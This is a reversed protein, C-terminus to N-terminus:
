VMGQARFWEIEEQLSARIPGPRYGLERKAKDISVYHPYKGMRVSALCALPEKNTLRGTIEGMVGGILTLAYPVQITPSPVGSLEGLVGLFNKLSINEGGLIYRNGITGREAALCHGEAADRVDVVNLGSDTYVPFKGKLFQIITHGIPSPKADGPGIPAALNIIIVPLGDACAEMAVRDAELKSLEYAGVAEHDDKLMTEDASSSNTGRRLVAATSTHIMKRVGAKRAAALVNRTGQTNAARMAEPNRTFFKVNAALHYVQECGQTARELSALDLIDGHVIDVSQGKLGSQDSGQRVLARVDAGREVLRRCLHAGVFGNAGTVLVKM